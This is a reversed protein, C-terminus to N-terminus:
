NIKANYEDVISQIMKIREIDGTSSIEDSIGLILKPAFLEIIKKAQKELEQISFIRDFLIAAIGDVLFVDDGLALKIEELTVDGQPKPTIAEIGDLGCEKAFPLLAKTNGDWHSSTFKNAKHLLENRKIYEPLVYEKFLDPPLTGSHLNDGFNIAELPSANIVEILREHSESLIKFFKGVTKPYDYIAYVAREVGMIDIYLYQINVRPMFMTPLGLDGWELLIEHYKKEDWKWICKEEIWAAVKMNEESEIWWKKPYLGNNSINASVSSNIKGIPTELTYETELESIKRSYEKVQPDNIKVFCSNYEYCRASCGLERYIESLSMERFPEPLEEGVFIKDDYWCGIIPQWIIKGKSEGRLIQRNLETLNLNKHDTIRNKM